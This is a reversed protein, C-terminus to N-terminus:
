LSFPVPHPPSAAGASRQPHGGSLFPLIGRDNTGGGGPALEETHEGEACSAAPAFAASTVSNILFVRRCPQSQAEGPFTSYPVWRSTFWPSM